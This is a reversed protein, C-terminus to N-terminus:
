LNIGMANLSGWAKLGDAIDKFVKGVHKVSIIGKEVDTQSFDNGTIRGIISKSGDKTKGIDAFVANIMGITSSIKFLLTGEEIPKGSDDIKGFEIGKTM